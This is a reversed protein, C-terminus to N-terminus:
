SKKFSDHTILQIGNGEVFVQDAQQALISTTELTGNQKDINGIFTLVTGCDPYSVSITIANKVVFGNIDRKLGVAKPCQKTAVATTFTGSIANKDLFQLTLTSGRTNKWTSTDNEATAASATSILGIALSCAIITHRM